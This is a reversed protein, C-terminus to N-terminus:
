LRDKEGRGERKDQRDQRTQENADSRAELVELRRELKEASRSLRHTADTQRATAIAGATLATTNKDNTDRLQEVLIRLDERVEAEVALRRTFEDAQDQRQRDGEAKQDDLKRFFDRRYFVWTLALLGIAGLQAILQAAQMEDPLPLIGGPDTQGSTGVPAPPQRAHAIPRVSVGFSPLFALIICPILLLRKM